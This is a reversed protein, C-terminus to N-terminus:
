SGKLCNFGSMNRNFVPWPFLPEVEQSEGTVPLSLPMEPVGPAAAKLPHEPTLKTFQNQSHPM